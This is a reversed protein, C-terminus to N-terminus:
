AGGGGVGEAREFLMRVGACLLESMDKWQTLREKKAASAAEQEGAVGGAGAVAASDAITAIDGRQECFIIYLQSLLQKGPVGAVAPPISIARAAQM